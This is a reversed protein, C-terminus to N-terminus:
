SGIAPCFIHASICLKFARNKCPDISVLHTLLGIQSPISGSISNDSVYLITLNTNALESPLQGSLKANWDLDLQVLATLMGFKSPINGGLGLSYFWLAKLNELMGYETPITGTM